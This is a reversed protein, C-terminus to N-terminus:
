VAMRRVGIRKDLELIWGFGHCCRGVRVGCLWVRAGGCEVSCGRLLECVDGMNLSLCVLLDRRGQSLLEVDLALRNTGVGMIGGEAFCDKM